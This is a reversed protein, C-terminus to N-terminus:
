PKPASQPLPSQPLVPSQQMGAVLTSINHKLMDLYTPAPGDARSLADSYLQGGLTVGAERSIQEILKANSINEVFVAGLKEQRIQRILRAVDQASAEAHTNMGQPALFTIGFRRGLYGFAEHSTMVRRRAPPIAQMAADAWTELAAIKALYATARQQYYAAHAPDAKVLGAAINAVYRRAHAPDQWAHPDPGAHSHRHGDAAARPATYAPLGETATVLTGKFQSAKALRALWGEFGLGNVVLVKAGAVTHVDQPAPQFVHADAGPGVLTNLRIRDGGVERVMDGLISFSAVVPLRDDAWAQPLGLVVCLLGCAWAIYGKM